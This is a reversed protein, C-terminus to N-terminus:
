DDNGKLLSSFINSIIQESVLSFKFLHAVFKINNMLREKLKNQEEFELNNFEEEKM